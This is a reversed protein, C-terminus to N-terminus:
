YKLDGLFSESGILVIEKGRDQELRRAEGCAPSCILIGLTRRKGGGGDRSSSCFGLRSSKELIPSGVLPNM